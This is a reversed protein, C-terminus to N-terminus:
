DGSNLHFAREEAEQRARLFRGQWDSDQDPLRLVVHEDLVEGRSTTLSVAVVTAGADSYHRSRWVARHRSRRHGGRRLAALVVYGCSLVVVTLVVALLLAFARM